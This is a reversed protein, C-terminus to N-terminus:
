PSILSPFTLLDQLFHHPLLTSVKKFPRMKLAASCGEAFM